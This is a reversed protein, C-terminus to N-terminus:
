GVHEALFATTRALAREASEAHYSSRLDCNFGHDAPYVFSQVGPYMSELMAGDTSPIMGDLDGYHLMVPCTPAEDKFAAATGYYGVSADLAPIRAAALWALAGGYCYGVTAAKLGEDKLASVAAAIDLVPNDFGVEVRIDRGKQVDEAEYSLEVDPQHRDFIQPAIAVYGLAAFRDAVARIHRNVGFIEQIVVVGGRAPMEPDARYAGFQHGDSAKLVITRGM